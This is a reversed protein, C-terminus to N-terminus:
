WFRTHLLECTKLASSTEPDSRRTTRLWKLGSFSIFRTETSKKVLAIHVVKDSRGALTSTVLRAHLITQHHRQREEHGIPPRSPRPLAM